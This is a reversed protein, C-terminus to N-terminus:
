GHGHKEDLTRGRRFEGPQRWWGLRQQRCRHYRDRGSELNPALQRGPAKVGANIGIDIVGLVDKGAGAADYM